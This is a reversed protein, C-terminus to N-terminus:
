WTWLRGPQKGRAKAAAIGSRIRERILEREFKAIGTLLTAMMWGHPTALDFTMGNLAEVSVRQVEL